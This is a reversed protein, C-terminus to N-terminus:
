KNSGSSLNYTLGFGFYSGLKWIKESLNENTIGTTDFEVGDYQKKITSIKAVSLGWSFSFKLNKSAISVGPGLAGFPTINEDFPVFFGVNITPRLLYGTRFYVEANLGLGVSKQNESDMYTRVKGSTESPKTYVSNNKLNTIYFMGGLNFGIGGTSKFVGVKTDNTSTESKNKLKLAITVEDNEPITISIPTISLYEPYWNIIKNLIQIDDAAFDKFKKEYFDLLEKKYEEIVYLDNLNLFKYEYGEDLVRLVKNLKNTLSDSGPKTTAKATEASPTIDNTKIPKVQSFIDSFSKTYTYDSGPIEVSIKELDHFNYNKIFITLSGNVPLAKAKKFNDNFNDTQGFTEINKVKYLSNNIKKNHNASADIILYRNSPSNTIQEDDTKRSPLKPFPIQSVVDYDPKQEETKGGSVKTEPTSDNCKAIDKVFKEQKKCLFLSQVITDNEKEGVPWFKIKNETIIQYNIKNKFTHPKNEVRSPNWDKANIDMSDKGDLLRITKGIEPSIDMKKDGLKVIIIQSKMMNISFMILLLIISNKM